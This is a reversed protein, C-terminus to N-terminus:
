PKSIGEAKAIARLKLHGINGVIVLLIILAYVFSLAGTARTGFSPQHILSEYDGAGKVGILMGSLQGSDLYTYYKPASIATPAYLLPTNNVGQVLGLWTDISATPSIEIIASIDKVTKIGKMIGFSTIPKGSSDHVITGPIDTDIGKLVPQFATQPRYGWDIYDVGYVYHYKVALATVIDQTLTHNQTDFSLTAFRIHRMMLHTIIAQTQWKNEGRSSSSWWGDVIVLGNPETTAVNEITKYFDISPKSPINLYVLKSCFLPILIAVILAAYIYRSDISQMKHWITRDM